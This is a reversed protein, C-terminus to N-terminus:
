SKDHGQSTSPVQASFVRWLQAQNCVLDYSMGVDAYSLGERHLHMWILTLITILASTAPRQVVQSATHKTLGLTRSSAPRNMELPVDQIVPWGRLLLPHVAGRPPSTYGNCAPMLLQHQSVTPHEHVAHHRRDHRRLVPWAAGVERSPDVLIYNCDTQFSAKLPAFPNCSQATCFYAQM